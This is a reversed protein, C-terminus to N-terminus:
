GPFVPPHGPFLHGGRCVWDILIMRLRFAFFSKPIPIEFKRRKVAVRLPARPAPWFGNRKDTPNGRWGHAYGRKRRECFHACNSSFAISPFGFDSNESGIDSLSAM